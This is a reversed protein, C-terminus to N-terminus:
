LWLDLSGDARRAPIAPAAPAANITDKDHALATDGAFPGSGRGAQSEGQATGFQMTVSTFGLARFEQQLVDVHRRMLDATEPRDTTVSLVITQDQATVTMRVRGLEVPDLTLETARDSTQRLAVSLQQAVHQALLPTQPRQTLSDTPLITRNVGGIMNEPLGMIPEATVVTSPSGSQDEQGSAPPTVHAQTLGTAAQIKATEITVTPVIAPEDAWTYSAKRTESTTDAARRVPLATEARGAAPRDFAVFTEVPGSHSVVEHLTTGTRPSSLQGINQGAQALAHAIPPAAVGIQLVRDPSQRLSVGTADIDAADTARTPRAFSPTEDGPADTLTMSVTAESVAEGSASLTRNLENGRPRVDAISPEAGVPRAFAAGQRGQAIPPVDVHPTFILPASGADIDRPDGTSGADPLLLDDSDEEFAGTAVHPSTGSSDAPNTVDDTLYKDQLRTIAEIFTLGDGM